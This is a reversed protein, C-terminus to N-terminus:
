SITNIYNVTFEKLKTLYDIFIKFGDGTSSNKNELKAYREEASELTMNISALWADVTIEGASRVM